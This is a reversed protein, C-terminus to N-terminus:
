GLIKTFEQKFVKIIYEIDLRSLNVSPLSIAQRSLLNSNKFNGDAYKRYPKMQDLSGFGPRCEIGRNILKNILLDLKHKSTKKLLLTYLWYSNQSWKNSPLLEINKIDAFFKDYIKAIKKRESIFNKIKKMQALGIAAQINTMRFNSGVIEHQYKRDISMGHNIILRAKIEHEKNKFVIMGGEGTTITKNAFFSFCSCDFDLGVLREKYIAGIAEACDEIVFLKNKKAIEKIEDIRCPQGYIHVAMIARTKKTIKNEIQKIDITWEYRCVDVLIPKCGANIISNISAAFTFNPVLIEDGKGLGLAMIGAQLASTGSSVAVAYGGGLYRSFSKEFQSIFYGRSSIWGSKLANLVNTIESSGIQPEAIPYSKIKDIFSIDVVQKFNNVLPICRVQKKKNSFSKFITEISSNSKLFITRKNVISSKLSINKKFKNKLIARRIDGDSISGMLKNNKDVVFVVGKMNINIKTLIQNLSAPLIITFINLKDKIM